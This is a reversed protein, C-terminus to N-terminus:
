FEYMQKNLGKSIYLRVNINITATIYMCNLNHTLSICFTHQQYLLWGITHCIMISMNAYYNM